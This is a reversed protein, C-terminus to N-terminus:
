QIRLGIGVAGLAQAGGLFRPLVGARASGVLALRALARISVDMRAQLGLTGRQDESWVYAPGALLRASRGRSARWERGGLATASYLVPFPLRCCGGYGSAIAGQASGAVGALWAGGPGPSVGRTAAVDLALGGRSRFEGHGVSGGAGVTLDLSVGPRDQAEAPRATVALGALM